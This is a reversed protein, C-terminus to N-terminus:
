RRLVAHRYAGSADQWVAHVRGASDVATELESQRAGAAPLLQVPRSWRDGDLRTHFHAPNTVGRQFRAVTLHLTGRGDVALRPSYLVHGTAPAVDQPTSWTQGDVSWAHLVRTPLVEGREGQLWVAHLVGQGDWALQPAHAHQAPRPHIPVPEHWRGGRHIRVWVVNHSVTGAPLLPHVYPELTALALAGGPGAALRAEAGAAGALVTGGEDVQGHVLRGASDSHVVHARGGAMAAALVAAPAREAPVGFWTTPPGWGDAGRLRHLLRTVGSAGGQDFWLVHVRDAEVALAAAAVTGAGDAVVDPTGWGPGDFTAHLLREMRGDRDEDAVFLAHLRGGADARLDALRHTGRLVTTDASLPALEAWTPAAPPEAARGQGCATAALAGVAVLWM